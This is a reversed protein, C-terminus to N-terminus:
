EGKWGALDAFLSFYHVAEEKEEDIERPAITLTNDSYCKPPPSLVNRLTLSDCKMGRRRRKIRLVCYREFKSPNEKCKKM